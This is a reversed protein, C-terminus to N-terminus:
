TPVIYMEMSQVKPSNKNRTYYFQNLAWRMTKEDASLERNVCDDSPALVTVDQYVLYLCLYYRVTQKSVGYEQAVSEIVRNRDSKVAAFPIVAAILTYREHVIRQSEPSLKMYDSLKVGTIQCLDEITCDEFGYFAQKKEWTPMTRRICDIFFVEEESIGLIRVVRDGARLLRGKRLEDRQM